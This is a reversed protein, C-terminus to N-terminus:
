SASRRQKNDEESKGKLQANEAKLQTNEHKLVANEASLEKTEDILLKVVLQLENDFENDQSGVCRGSMKQSDGSMQGSMKKSKSGVNKSNDIQMLGERLISEANQDFDSKYMEGVGSFLWNADINSFKTLILQLTKQSPRRNENIIRGITVNNTLGIAVSLSNKNLSYVSMIMQIRNSISNEM